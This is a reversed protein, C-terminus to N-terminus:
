RAAFGGARAPEAVRRAPAIGGQKLAAKAEADNLRGDREARYQELLPAAAKADAFEWLHNEAGDLVLEWVAKEVAQQIALQGPENTTVGADVQLLKQYAVYRFVNAGIAKSAVTKSATVSSLVEGTRVSVARLYVTVTDQQYQAKGGIGLLAAGAGGTLTNTDYSVVGGELLVGAFLMAPLAQPNVAQEGLYRERMERIVQRETLVHQLNEREVVTFWGHNGADLLAKVLISSGGQTIARSLTQGTEQLKYQGTQDIFGYVGVAVPRSPPPLAELLRQTQTKAPIFARATTPPVTDRGSGGLTACGALALPVAALAV